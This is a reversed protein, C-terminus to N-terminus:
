PLMLRREALFSKGEATWEVQVIWAGRRLDDAPVVQRGRAGPAVVFHRDARADSARYFTIEGAEVRMGSPWKVIVNRSGTETGVAFSDGLEGARAVAAMRADHALSQPYYDASVLDVQQRMAFTVVGVTGAAFAIYVLTIGLGWHLPRMM